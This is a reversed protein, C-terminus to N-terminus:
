GGSVQNSSLSQAHIKAAHEAVPIGFFVSISLMIIAAGFGFGPDDKGVMVLVLTSFKLCAILIAWVGLTLSTPAVIRAMVRSLQDHAATQPVFRFFIWLMLAISIALLWWPQDPM